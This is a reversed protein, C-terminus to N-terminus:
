RICPVLIFLRGKDLAHLVHKVWAPVKEIFQFCRFPSLKATVLHPFTSGLLALMACRM